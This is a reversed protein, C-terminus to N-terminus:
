KDGHSYPMLEKVTVDPHTYRPTDAKLRLYLIAKQPCWNMCAQCHECASSFVPKNNIMSIARAPCIKECIGCGTCADTVVYMKPFSKKGLRFLSSVFASIPRFTRVSNKSQKKICLAAAATSERQMELRTTITSQSPAGFMPIYNEVAPLTYSFDLRSGNRKLLRAAEALAGGPSSGYTVMAAIYPSNVKRSLLFERVMAPMQYAYAPFLFVVCDANIEHEDKKIESAINYIECEGGSGNLIKCIEKASWYTNGTGSFYYIKTM